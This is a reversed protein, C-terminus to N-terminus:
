SIGRVRLTRPGSPIYGVIVCLIAGEILGEMSQGVGHVFVGMEDMPDSCYIISDNSNM